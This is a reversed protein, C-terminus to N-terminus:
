DKRSQPDLADRLGDGLFNLALLTIALVAGPYLILWPADAMVQRGDSILAGWSTQPAQVGLGLFSLFAEELMVAPVTLTAYVIIPGLANPILHRFIIARNSVGITRAAEVFEQGKLSIVQGRVIRAMTLWQIAGLAVFLLIINQGFVVMLLIVLFMFPLGYMVDVIRMMVNDTKGGVFGATAGWSVGIVFSVFTAIFGVALSIRAGYVIRTILDRGLQDTGLLNVRPEPLGAFEAKSILGDEDKDFRTLIDQAEGMGVLDLLKGAEAIQMKGDEGADCAFIKESEIPALSRKIMAWKKCNPESGGPAPLSLPADAYEEANLVGDSDSDIQSFEFARYANYIERPELFGDKNGDVKDYAFDGNQSLSYYVSPVSRAGPPKPMIFNHQEEMTFNTGFRAILEYGLACFTMFLVICGGVIAAKNKKLRRWADTWLSTGKIIDASSVTSKTDNQTTNEM